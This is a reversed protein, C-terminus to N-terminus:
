QAGGEPFGYRLGLLRVVQLPASKGRASFPPVSDDILVDEEVQRYLDESLLVTVM